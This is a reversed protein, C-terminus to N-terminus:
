SPNVLKWPEEGDPSVTVQVVGLELMRSRADEKSMRGNVMEGTLHLAQEIQNKGCKPCTDGAQSVERNCCPTFM